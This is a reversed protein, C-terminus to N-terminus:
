VFPIQDFRLPIFFPHNRPKYIFRMGSNENKFIGWDQDCGSQTPFINILQKEKDVFDTAGRAASDAGPNEVTQQSLRKIGIRRRQHLTASQLKIVRRLCSPFVIRTEMRRLKNKKHIIWM